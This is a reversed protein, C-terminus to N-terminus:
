KRRADASPNWFGAWYEAEERRRRNLAGSAEALDLLQDLARLRDAPSTRLVSDQLQAYAAGEWTWPNHRDDPTTM